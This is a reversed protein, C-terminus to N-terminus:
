GAAAIAEAYAAQVEALLHDRTLTEAFETTVHVGDPREERGADSEPESFWQGYSVEVVSPWAQAWRDIVANWADVREPERGYFGATDPRLYPADAILLPVGMSSLTEHLAEMESDHFRDYEASGPAHWRDDGPYRQDWQEALGDVAFIVDIDYAAVLRPWDTDFRLCQNTDAEANPGGLIATARVLPCRIVGVSVVDFVGASARAFGESLAFATSDGVLLVRLAANAEAPAGSSVRQAFDAIDAEDLLTVTGTDRSEAALTTAVFDREGGMSDYVYGPVALSALFGVVEGIAGRRLPNDVAESTVWTGEHLRYPLREQLGFGVLLVDPAFDAILGEWRNRECDSEVTEGALTQYAASAYAPCNSSSRDIIEVRAPDGGVRVRDALTTDSGVVLVRVPSGDAPPETQPTFTVVSGPGGPAGSFASSPAGPAVTAAFLVVAALSGGWAAAGVGSRLRRGSRIPQEILAYSLGAAAVAALAAVGMWPASTRGNMRFWLFIPWHFLYVGYSIRGLWRLPLWGLATAFWGDTVAAMVAIASGISLLALGGHVLLESDAHGYRAVLGIVVLAALGAAGSLVSRRALAPVALRTGCVVALLCGVLLEAARTHAGYYAMALSDTAYAMAASATAGAAFAIALGRRRLGVRWLLAIALPYVFYFQEEIALSWTHLLPSPGSFLDAYSVDSVAFRWNAVNAVAALADHRLNPGFSGSGLWGWACVAAVTVLAAPTLRRVRRAWFRPLSVRGSRDLERLLLTTILYGSLTFFVSVGVFGGPLWGLGSHFVLVLLVSVARLGDVGPLYRQGADKESNV